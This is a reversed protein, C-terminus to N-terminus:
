ELELKPKDIYFGQSYEIGLAEVKSLITSSHVYKAITKIGLKKAFEVISEVIYLAHTDHQIKNILEGDIKIFDVHLKQLIYFNCYEKGFGDIAIKAGYRKVQYVFDEIQKLGSLTDLEQIEFVIRHSLPSNKVVSVMYDYTEQNLIDEKSINISFDFRNNICEKLTRQIMEKTITHYMKTRKSMEVFKEPAIVIGEADILRALTEYM